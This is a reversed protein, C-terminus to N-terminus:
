ALARKTRRVLMWLALPLLLLTFGSFPMMAAGVIAIVLLFLAATARTM